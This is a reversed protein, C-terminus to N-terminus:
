RQRQAFSGYTVTTTVTLEGSGYKSKNEIGQEYHALAAEMSYYEVIEHVKGHTVLKVTFVCESKM